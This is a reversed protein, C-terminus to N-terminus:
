YAQGLNEQKVFSTRQARDGLTTARMTRAGTTDSGGCSRGCRLHGTSRDYIVPTEQVAYSHHPRAAFMNDLFSECKTGIAGARRGANLCPAIM